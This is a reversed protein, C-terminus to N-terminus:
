QDASTHSPKRSTRWPWGPYVRLLTKWALRKRRPPRSSTPSASKRPSIKLPVKILPGSARTVSGGPRTQQRRGCLPIKRHGQIVRPDSFSREVKGPRLLEKSSVKADNIAYVLICADCGRYFAAGMTQFREQGATDWIQNSLRCVFRNAM